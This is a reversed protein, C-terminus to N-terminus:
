GSGWSYSKVERLNVYLSLARLICTSKGEGDRSFARAYALFRQCHGEAAKSQRLGSTVASMNGETLFLNMLLKDKQSVDLVGSGLHILWSNLTNLSRELYPLQKEDRILRGIDLKCIEESVNTTINNLIDVDV